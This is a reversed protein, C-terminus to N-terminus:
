LLIFLSVIFKRVHTDFVLTRAPLDPLACFSVVPTRELEVTLCGFDQCEPMNVLGM